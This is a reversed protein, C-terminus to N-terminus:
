ASRHLDHADPLATFGASAYTAVAAVNSSATCVTACSSGMDRLASAAAITIARGYGHGRHDRHVGMPELLGPKGAGASWVTVDAVPADHENYGILSKADAYAPGVVMANWREVTFTSGDFASRQTAAWEDALASGAVEIRLGCDQVPQALDRVLPTWPEGNEWGHEILSSRFADGFRAEIDVAGRGLVGRDPEMVDTVMTRALVEDHQARPAIAVRLLERGDLLGVALMEGNRSWTRVVDATADAGFRWHWGVDGPHLQVPAGDFQWDRLAHVVDGLGEATPTALVITSNEYAM